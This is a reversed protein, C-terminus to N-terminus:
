VSAPRLKQLEEQLSMNELSLDIVRQSLWQTYDNESGEGEFSMRALQMNLELVLSELRKLYDGSMPSRHEPAQKMAIPKPLPTRITNPARAPSHKAPQQHTAPKPADATVPRDSAIPDPRDTLSASASVPSESEPHSAPVADSTAQASADVTDDNDIVSAAPAEVAVASTATVPAEETSTTEETPTVSAPDIAAADAAISGDLTDPEISLAAEVDEDNDAGSATETTQTGTAHPAPEEAGDINVWPNCIPPKYDSENGWNILTALQDVSFMGFNLSQLSGKPPSGPQTEASMQPSM